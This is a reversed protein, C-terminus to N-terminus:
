KIPANKQTVTHGPDFFKFASTFWICREICRALFLSRGGINVNAKNSILLWTADIQDSRLVTTLLNGCQGTKANVEASHTLPLEM